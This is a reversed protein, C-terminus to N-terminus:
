CTALFLCFGWPISTILSPNTNQSSHHIWCGLLFFLFCSLWFPHLTKVFQINIVERVHLSLRHWPNPICVAMDFTQGNSWRLLRTRSIWLRQPCAHFHQRGLARSWPVQRQIHSAYNDLIYQSLLLTVAKYTFSIKSKSKREVVAVKDLLWLIHPKMYFCGDVDFNVGNQFSFVLVFTQTKSAFTCSKAFTM